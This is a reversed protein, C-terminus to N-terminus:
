AMDAPAHGRNARKMAGRRQEQNHGRDGDPSLRPAAQAELSGGPNLWAEDGPEIIGTQLIIGPRAISRDRSPAKPFTPPLTVKTDRGTM